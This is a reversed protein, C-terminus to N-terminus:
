SRKQIWYVKSEQRLSLLLFQMNIFWSSKLKMRSLLPLIILALLSVTLSFNRVQNLINDQLNIQQKM